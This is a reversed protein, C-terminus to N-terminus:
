FEAPVIEPRKEHPQKNSSSVRKTHVVQFMGFVDEPGCVFYVLLNFQCMYEMNWGLAANGVVLDRGCDVM